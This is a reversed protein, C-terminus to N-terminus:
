VNKINKELKIYQIKGFQNRPFMEINHVKFANMNLGTYKTISNKLEGINYKSEIFINITDESGTCACNYGSDLLIQEIEDLNVRFGFIKVYRNKRGVVYFFGEADMKALDGTHLIGKNIDGKKLDSHGTAYGLSVNDGKYVLEGEVGAKYVIKANETIKANM